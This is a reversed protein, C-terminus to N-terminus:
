RVVLRALESLPAPQVLFADAGAELWRERDGPLVINAVAILRPRPISTAEVIQRLMEPGALGPIHIGMIIADPPESRAHTLADALTSAVEV